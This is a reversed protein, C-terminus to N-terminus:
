AKLRRSREFSNRDDIQRMVEDTIAKATAQTDTAGTVTINIAPVTIATGGGFGPAGLAAASQALLGWSRTKNGTLPIAAEPGNEAFEAFHRYKFIGGLAHKEPGQNETNPYQSLFGPGKWNGFNAAASEFASWLGTLAQNTGATSSTLADLSPSANMVSTAFTATVNQITSAADDGTKIKQGPLGWDTISESGPFMSQKSGFTIPVGPVPNQASPKKKEPFVHEVFTNVANAFTAVANVFNQITEVIKGTVDGTLKRGEGSLYSTGGGEWLDGFGASKQIISRTPISIGFSKGLTKLLNESSGGLKSFDIGEFLPLLSTLVPTLQDAWAGIKQTFAGFAPEFDNVLKTKLTDFDGTLRVAADAADETIKEQAKNANAIAALHPDVRSEAGKYDKELQGVLKAFNSNAQTETLHGGKKARALTLENAHPIQEFLKRANGTTAAKILAEALDSGMTEATKGTADTLAAPQTALYQNIAPLLREMGHPKVGLHAAQGVIARETAVLQYTKQSEALKQYAEAHEMLGATGEKMAWTTGQLSTVLTAQQQLVEIGVNTLEGWSEILNDVAEKLQDFVYTVGALELIKQGFESFQEGTESATRALEELKEKAENFTSDVSPDKRAALAIRATQEKGPM